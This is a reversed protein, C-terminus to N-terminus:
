LALLLLGLLASRSVLTEALCYEGPSHAGGGAPGLGDLTAVGLAATFNGDSGGGTASEELDLGLMVGLERARAFLAAGGASREMPPRNIGGKVELKVREDCPRAALIRQEVARLDGLRWARAELELVAEAAVVNSRTGGRLVGPNVTVGRELDTLRAWEVTQRALELVASAGQAFDVGAHAAAGTARVDFSAIGKRATKLRGEPGSGPELVLVAGAHQALQEILPRSTASGTEEDSVLLLMVRRRAELNLHRLAVWAEYAALVGGKMDLVGPGAVRGQAQRFPMSPLTGLPYVTDVHGLLLLGPGPERGPALVLEYHDGAEAQRHLTLSAGAAVFDDCIARGCADVAEKDTSPSEREVWQRLRELAAPARAAVLARLRPALAALDPSLATDM